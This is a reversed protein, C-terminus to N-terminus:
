RAIVWEYIVKIQELIIANLDDVRKQLQSIQSQLHANEQQLIQNEAQLSEIDNTPMSPTEVLDSVTYQFPVIDENMAATGKLKYFGSHKWLSGGTKIHTSFIGDNDAELQALAVVEGTPDIIQATVPWERIEKGVKGFIFIEEGDKYSNSDTFIAFGRDGVTRTYLDDITTRTTTQFSFSVPKFEPIYKFQTITETGAPRHVAKVTFVGKIERGFEAMTIRGTDFFGNSDSDIRLQKTYVLDGLPNTVSIYVVSNYHVPWVFGQIHFNGVDDYYLPGPPVSLSIEDEEALAVPLSSILILLISFFVEYQSFSFNGHKGYCISLVNMSMKTSMIM